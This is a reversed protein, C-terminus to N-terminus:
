PSHNRYLGKDSGIMDLDGVERARSDPVSLLVKDLEYDQLYEKNDKVIEKMRAVVVHTPGTIEELITGKANNLVIQWRAGECEGIEDCTLPARETPVSGSRFTWGLLILIIGIVVLMVMPPTTKQIASLVWFIFLFYCGLVTIAYFIGWLNLVLGFLTCAIASGISIIYRDGGSSIRFFSGIFWLLGFSGIIRGSEGHDLLARVEDDKNFYLFGLLLSLVLVDSLITKIVKM